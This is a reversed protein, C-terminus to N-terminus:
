ESTPPKTSKTEPSLKQSVVKSATDIGQKAVEIFKDKLEPIASLATQFQQSAFFEHWPSGHIQHDVLRLPAEELRTLASNFLRAEFAEDIRAAEKRYGEYAKAVSAKFAYDEALKFRQGIQKTAIWAFWIPAGVSLLSLIIHLAIAGWHLDPNTLATSLLEIRSSGIKSGIGLAILLGVVWASMSWALRSARQDFAGALGKTTTIRYADECQAVLKEAETHKAAASDATEILSKYKSAAKDASSEASKVYQDAKEKAEALAQLDLPLSEAAAHALQIERIQSTLAEKNPAIQDVETQLSRLRRAIHGPMAKPDPISQWVMLPMLSNRMSELTAIYAATAPGCNGGWFQPVTNGQMHVLRRPYDRILVLLEQGIDTPAAARIDAALKMPIFAMDHRTVSPCNWGWAECFTQDGSWGNRVAVSLSDLAACFAELEPIM